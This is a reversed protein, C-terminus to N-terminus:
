EDWKKMGKLTIIKKINNKEMHKKIQKLETLNLLTYRNQYYICIIISIIAIGLIMVAILMIFINMTFFGWVGLILFITYNIIFFIKFEYAEKLIAKNTVAINMNKSNQLTKM